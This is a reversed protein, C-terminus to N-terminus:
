SPDNFSFVICEFLHKCRLLDNRHGICTGAIIIKRPQISQLKSVIQTFVEQKAGSGDVELLQKAYLGRVAKVHAHFQELRKKVTEETDDARQTLRAKIAEDEPPPNFKVHYIKGTVPDTRRGVVRLGISICL